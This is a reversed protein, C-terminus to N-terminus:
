LAVISINKLYEGYVLALAIVAGTSTGVIWDFLDTIKSQTREELEVLVQLQSLGKIGGGDLCLIRSGGRIGFGTGVKKKPKPQTKNYLALERQQMVLAYAADAGGITASVSMRRIVSVELENYLEKVGKHRVVESIKDNANLREKRKPPKIKEAFSFLRPIKKQQRCEAMKQTSGKAGLDLLIIEISSLTGDSIVLDLPTFQNCGQKNLDAGFVIAAKICM